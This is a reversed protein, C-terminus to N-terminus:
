NTIGDLTYDYKNGLRVYGTTGINITSRLAIEHSILYICYNDDLINKPLYKHYDDEFFVSYGTLLKILDKKYNIDKENTSIFIIKNNTNKKIFNSIHEPSTMWRTGKPPIHVSNDLCDGRRSHIFTYNDLKLKSIIDNAYGKLLDSTSYQIRSYGSPITLLSWITLGLKRSEYNVLAIIDVNNDIKNLSVNSPYYSISLNTIVEGNNGYTFPPNIELNDINDLNLYTSWTHNKSVIKDNNHHMALGIWPPFFVVKRNLCKAIVPLVQLFGIENHRFGAIGKPNYRKGPSIPRRKNSFILILYKM